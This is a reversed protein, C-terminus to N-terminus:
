LDIRVYDINSYGANTWPYNRDHTGLGANAAAKLYDDAQDQNPDHYVPEAYLIDLMVCDLAVPDQSFLLSNPAKNDFTSWRQPVARTRGLAGYLGDGVTLVTKNGIHPNLYIDVLPSYNPDYVGEAPSIYLHLDDDGPGTVKDISGFHNKFGLTVPHIGHDKIIPMNILYDANIVVDTLRRNSLNAHQFTVEANPDNSNFTADERCGKSVSDFFRVGGYLCRNVFRDPLPRLADYIWINSEVVGFTKLSSILANVPEILGDIQNDGDDCRANNFNVKIAIAQGSQFNPLLQAWAAQISNTGTLEMLGREVMTNVAQQDVYDGYWGSSFNWNTADPDHVHVVRGNGPASGSGPDKIIIPLYVFKDLTQAMAELDLGKALQHLGLGGATAMLGKLLHRRSIEKKKM